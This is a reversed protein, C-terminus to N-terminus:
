RIFCYISESTIEWTIYSVINLVIDQKIWWRYSAKRDDKYYYYGILFLYLYVMMQILKKRWFFIVHISILRPIRLFVKYMISSRTNYFRAYIVVLVIIFVRELIIYLYNFYFWQYYRMFMHEKALKTM